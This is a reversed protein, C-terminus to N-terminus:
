RGVPLHRARRQVLLVSVVIPVTLLVAGLMGVRLGVTEAVLGMLPPYLVSGSVGAASLAGSMRNVRDPFLGGGLAMIMPYVPGYCVGVLGFLVIREVTGTMALAALLLVGSAIVCLYTFTYYSMREVFWDAGLRGTALGAWFVSLVLTAEAVTGTDLLRVVWNSVSLEAAVYLNIGVALGAFPILSGAIRLGRADRHTSAGRDGDKGSPMSGTLMVAAVTAGAVATGVLIPRWGVDVLSLGGVALPGVFAGVALYLHLRNMARGREDRHLDLFLGNIGGELIGTAWYSPAAAVVLLTWDQCAVMLALSVPYAILAAGLVVPRGFRDVLYGSTVAGLTYLLAGVLLLLGFDADGRGFDTLLSRVLSPLLVLNWGMLFFVAYVAVKLRGRRPTTGATASELTTDEATTDEM